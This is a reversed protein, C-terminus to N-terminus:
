AALRGIFRCELGLRYFELVKEIAQIDSEELGKRGLNERSQTVIEGFSVLGAYKAAACAREWSRSSVGAAKLDEFTPFKKLYDSQKPNHRTM